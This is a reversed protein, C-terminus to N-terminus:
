NIRLFHQLKRLQSLMYSSDGETMAKILREWQKLQETNPVTRALNELISSRTRHSFFDQWSRLEKNHHYLRMEDVSLVRSFAVNGSIESCILMNRVNTDSAGWIWRYFLVTQLDDYPISEEDHHLQSCNKHDRMLIWCDNITIMGVSVLGFMPKYKDILIQSKVDSCPGKLFYSFPTSSKDDQLSISNLARSFHYTQTKRESFSAQKSASAIWKNLCEQSVTRFTHDFLPITPTRRADYIKGEELYNYFKRYKGLGVNDMMKYIEIYEKKGLDPMIPTNVKAGENFFHDLGKGARKGETTHKDYVYDPFVPNKSLSYDPEEEVIFAIKPAPLCVYTCAQCIRLNDSDRALIKSLESPLYTALIRWLRKQDRKKMLLSMGVAGYYSKNKLCLKLHTEIADDDCNIRFLATDSHVKMGITSNTRTKSVVCLSAAFSVLSVETIPLNTFHRIVASAAPGCDECAITILRKFLGKSYNNKSMLEGDRGFLFESAVKVADDINGRRIFKQLASYLLFLNLKHRGSLLISM